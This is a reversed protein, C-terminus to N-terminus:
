RVSREIFDELEQMRFRKIPRKFGTAVFEVPRIQDRKVLEQLSSVSICLLRAAETPTLLLPELFEFEVEDDDYDQDANDVM